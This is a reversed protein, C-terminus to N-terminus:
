VDAYRFIAQSDGTRLASTGRRPRRRKTMAGPRPASFQDLPKM